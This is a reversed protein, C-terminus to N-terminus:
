CALMYFKSEQSKKLSVFTFLQSTQLHNQKLNCSISILKEAAEAFAGKHHRHTIIPHKKRFNCKHWNTKMNKKGVMLTMRPATSSRWPKPAPATNPAAQVMPLPPPYPHFHLGKLAGATAKNSRQCIYLSRGGPWLGTQPSKQWAKRSQQWVSIFEAPRIVWCGWWELLKSRSRWARM